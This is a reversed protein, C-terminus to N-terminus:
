GRAEYLKQVCIWEPGSFEKDEVHMLWTTKDEENKMLEFGCKKYFDAVQTNKLTPVFLGVLKKYGKERVTQIINALLTEEIKRGLARCSLLLSDIFAQDSSYQIIAVGIIGLEAVRDRLQIYFVDYNPNDLFERIQGETYRKTTLNFQNTKQTLQAIRGINIDCPIGIGARMNLKCLYNELSTSTALLQKRKRDGLYMDTRGKDEQSVTLSDFLGRMLLKSRFPSPDGSLDIVEVEPLQDLILELEFPNDDAFVISDLGINLEQAIKVLNGAKDNWNIEWTAFHRERLVMDPHNRLVSLVELEDNKSCIALIVGRNYLNLIERQFSQYCSGPYANGLKIRNLGEEGIVGGWLTNDCDLVLCKKSKGKLARFFRGYEQGIAVLSQRGLPARATHWYREDITCSGIRAFVTMFNVVYVDSYKKATQLLVRNLNIITDVQQDSEQSDFIGASAYDPLPFNNILIPITAKQKISMIINNLEDVIRDVEDHRSTESLGNFGEVLKPALGNLWLDLIIVDPSFQFLDSNHSMVDHAIADFSGVYIEPRFGLLFIEAKIVPILLEVTFNRLIAVKLSPLEQVLPSDSDVYNCLDIYESYQPNSRSRIKNIIKKAEM